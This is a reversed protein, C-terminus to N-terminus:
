LHTRGISSSGICPIMCYVTNKKRDPKKKNLVTDILTM